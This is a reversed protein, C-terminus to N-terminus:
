FHIIVVLYNEQLGLLIAENMGKLETTTMVDGYDNAIRYRIESYFIQKLVDPTFSTGNGTFKMHVWEDLSKLSNDVGFGTSAFNYITFGHGTTNEVYKLLTM